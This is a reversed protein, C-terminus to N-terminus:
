FGIPKEGTQQQKVTAEQGLADVLMTYTIEEKPYFALRDRVIKFDGPTLRRLNKVTEINRDDPALKALPTLMKNYFIWSGDPTLFDFRIKHNFRRIAASDIGTLRNTTCILM